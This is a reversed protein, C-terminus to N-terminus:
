ALSSMRATSMANQTVNAAHILERLPGAEHVFRSASAGNPPAIEATVVFEGRGLTAQLRSVPQPRAPPHYRDDGQWWDPQRLDQFFADVRSRWDDDALRRPSLLGRESAAGLATLWTEHGVRSWDLPAQVELLRELRGLREANEYILHWVCPREPDVCCRDMTGSGCPGNRLGKPCLLPCIFATEQLLCNGCMSCNFLAGKILREAATVAREGPSPSRLPLFPKRFRRLRM